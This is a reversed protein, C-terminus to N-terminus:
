MAGTHSRSHTTVHTAVHSRLANIRLRRRRGIKLLLEPRERGDVKEDGGVEDEETRCTEVHVTEICFIVIM